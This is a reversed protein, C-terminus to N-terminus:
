LEDTLCTDVYFFLVLILCYGKHKSFVTTAMDTVTEEDEMEEPLEQVSGSAGVLREALEEPDTNENLEIVQGFFPLSANFISCTYM